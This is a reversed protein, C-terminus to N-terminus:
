ENGKNSGFLKAAGVCLVEIGVLLTVFYLMIRGLERFRIASILMIVSLVACVVGVLSIVIFIAKRM